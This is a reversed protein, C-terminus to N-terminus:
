ADTSDNRPDNPTAIYVDGTIRWYANASNRFYWKAGAKVTSVVGKFFKKM